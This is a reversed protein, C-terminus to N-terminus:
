CATAHWYESTALDKNRSSADPSSIADNNIWGSSRKCLRLEPILTSTLYIKLMSSDVVLLGMLSKIQIMM